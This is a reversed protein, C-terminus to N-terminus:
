SRTMATVNRGTTPFGFFSGRKDKCTRAHALARERAHTRIHTHAHAHTQSSTRVVECSSLCKHLIQQCQRKPLSSHSCCFIRFLIIVIKISDFNVIRDYSSCKFYLLYVTVYVYLNHWEPSEMDCSEPVSPRLLPFWHGYFSFVVVFFFFVMVWATATETRRMMMKVMLTIVM